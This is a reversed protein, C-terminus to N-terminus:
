EIIIENNRLILVREFEYKPDVFEAIKIKDFAKQIINKCKYFEEDESDNISIEKLTGKKTFELLYYEANCNIEKLNIIQENLKKVLYKDLTEKISKKYEFEKEEKENNKYFTAISNSYTKGKELRNNFLEYMDYLNLSDISQVFDKLKKVYIISDNQMDLCSYKTLIIKTDNKLEFNIRDCDPGTVNWNNIFKDTPTDILKEKLIQKGILNSVSDNLEVIEFVYNKPTYSVFEGVKTPKVAKLEIVKNLLKGQFNINDNSFVDIIQGNTNFRFHIRYNSKQINPLNFYYMEKDFSSNTKWIYNNEIDVKKLSNQAFLNFTFFILFSTIQKRSM